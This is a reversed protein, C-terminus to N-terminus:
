TVCQVKEQIIHGIVRLLIGFTGFGLHHSFHRMLLIMSATFLFPLALSAVM